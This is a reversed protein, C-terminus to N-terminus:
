RLPRRLWLGDLALWLAVLLVLGMAGYARLSHEVQAGQVQLPKHELRTIEDFIRGLVDNSDARFYTGGAQAAIQKLQTDNLRTTLQKGADGPLPKGNVWVPVPEDQGIGVVYLRMGKERLFRAALLPDAGLHSEGDTVLLVVQDRGPERLELMASSAMLLADGVATGGVRYHDVSEYSISDILDVVAQTDTTFPAQTVCIAAFAYVGVRNGASRRVLETSLKKLVELRNPPFDAAQMSASVDLVLALDIGDEDFLQVEEVEMPGALTLVSLALLAGELGLLWGWGGRSRSAVEGFQLPPFSAAESLLRRKRWLVWAPVAALLLLLWPLKWSIM